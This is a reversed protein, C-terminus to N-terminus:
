RQAYCKRQRLTLSGWEKPALALWDAEELPGVSAELQRRGERLFCRYARSEWDAEDHEEAENSPLNSATQPSHNTAHGAVLDRRVSEAHAEYWEKKSPPLVEWAGLLDAILAIPSADSLSATSAHLRAMAFVSFGTVQRTPIGFANFAARPPLKMEMSGLLDTNVLYKLQENTSRLVSKRLKKRCSDEMIMFRRVKAEQAAIRKAWLRQAGSMARLFVQLENVAQRGGTLSHM